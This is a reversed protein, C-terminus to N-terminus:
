LEYFTSLLVTSLDVDGNLLLEISNQGELGSGVQLGDEAVADFHNIPSLGVIHRLQSIVDAVGINGDNDVDAALASKGGLPSLGVIHRLSAIVDVVGIDATHMAPDLTVTGITMGQLDFYATDSSISTSVGDVKATITGHSLTQGKLLLKVGRNGVEIPVALSITERFGWNDVYDIDLQLDQGIMDETLVFDPGSVSGQLEGDLSWQYNLGSGYGDVDEFSTLDVSVTQGVRVSGILALSGQPTTNTHSVVFALSDYSALNTASTRYAITNGVDNIAPAGSIDDALSGGSNFTYIQNSNKELNVSFLQNSLDTTNQSVGFLGLIVETDNSGEIWLEYDSAFTLASVTSDVRKTLSIANVLYLDWLGDNDSALLDKALLAIEDGVFAALGGDYGGATGETNASVLSIEGARWLYLDSAANTDNASFTEAANTSFLVSVLGDVIAVDQLECEENAETGDALTSIRTLTNTQKDLLYVDSVTNTDLSGTPSLNTAATEFAVYRGSDDAVIRQISGDAVIGTAAEILDVRNLSTGTVSAVRNYIGSSADDTLDEYGISLTPTSDNSWAVSATSAKISTEDGQGVITNYNTLYTGDTLDVQMFAHLQGADTSYLVDVVALQGNPSVSVPSVSFIIRAGPDILESTPLPIGKLM